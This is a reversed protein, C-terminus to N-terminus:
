LVPRYTGVVAGVEIGQGRLSNARALVCAGQMLNMAVATVTRNAPSELFSGKAWENFAGMAPGCWIQYDPKRTADGKNAWDSSRGLYSRFVLAMKHKPDAEAREIQKADRSEFFARTQAWAEELTCRFYEKELVARDKSPIEDLRNYQRYLDYLKRARVAFMTGWKLVQVRVGMEFMDAAPAMIVDAPGAKALMERVTLSTGAEVCAQNVSGTMVFAAGMAFAAVVAAPTSIGGAAGVRLPEAYHHKAQMEDRLAMMSPLLTVLPRNDTHGGSDAEVTMDTSIPITAALTAQEATIDGSQVLASLMAEPPPSFFKRAVEGRSVKAIVRNPCVVRGDAARHIGSVRYRVLPLTLDLYASADVLRVHRRLYLDVVGAELAPENPSHILNFGYPADGLTKQIREIAAEVRELSLGASGFFGLCGARSMAEVIEASGIGNAMAGALYAYKLGHARKFAADGLQSPTMMPVYALLPLSESEERAGLVARGGKAIAVRGQYGVAVIPRAVDLVAERMAEDGTRPVEGEATWWGMPPVVDVHEGSERPVAGELPLRRMAEVGLDLLLNCGAFLTGVALRAGTRATQAAVNMASRGTDLATAALGPLASESHDSKDGM